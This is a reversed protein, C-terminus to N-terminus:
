SNLEASKAVSINLSTLLATNAPGIQQMFRFVQWPAALNFINRSYLVSIAQKCVRRCTRLINPDIIWYPMLSSM